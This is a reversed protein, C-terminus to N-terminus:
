TRRRPGYERAIALLDLGAGLMDKLHLKSGAVDHWSNLPVEVFDSPVLPEHPDTLLRGILEVDFAWRSRFPRHLARELGPSVRFLKAGCQSDYIRLNLILSVSTAFVRGLYHRGPKRQVKRGLTAIRAALAVKRPPQQLALLLRPLEDVPTSLDADFYGVIDAGRDLAEHLGTRVAEAKGQNYSQKIWWAREDQGQCFGELVQATQDASGDDVFLLDVPALQLLRAFEGLRLRQAENYCPVVIITKHVSGVM